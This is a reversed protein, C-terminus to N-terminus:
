GIERMITLDSHSYCHCGIWIITDTVKRITGARLTADWRVRYEVQKDKLKPREVRDHLDDFVTM